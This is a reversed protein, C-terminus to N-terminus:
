AASFRQRIPAVTMPLSTGFRLSGVTWTGLAKWRCLDPVVTGWDTGLPSRGM